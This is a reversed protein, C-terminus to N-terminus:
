RRKHAAKAAPKTSKTRRRTPGLHKALTDTSIGLADAAQQRNMGGAILERADNIAHQSVVRRVGEHVPPPAPRHHTHSPLSTSLRFAAAM